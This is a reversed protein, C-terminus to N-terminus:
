SAGLRASNRLRQTFEQAPIPRCFFYGQFARCGQSMLFEVQAATEVGEAVVELNLAHSMAIITKVIAADEPNDHIDRVFSQDIKMQDLPLRKLYQLSSYGTGFDDMSFTIGSRKIEQMKAITEEVRELVASETLELKLRDARAGTEHVIRGIHKVLAPDKFQRASMNVALTLHASEPRQQWAVLQQCATELVWYGIPVILGTEEALPIFDAPSVVGRVPHHWRLLAEAGFPRGEGDVQLQFVLRFEKKELAQQLDHELSTRYELTAQLAPDYFRITNRGANKAQYMAADACKFLEEADHTGDQFLAVGISPTVRYGEGDIVYPVSLSLRVQEAFLEVRHVAQARNVGLTDLLLAFEDGGFRGMTLMGEAVALTRLRATVEQLLKDGISHGRTDNVTKFNDLDLYLLAGYHGSSTCFQLAHNIYESLLHRNPLGTLTDYHALYHAQQEAERRRVEADRLALLAQAVQRVEGKAQQALADVEPLPPFKGDSLALDSLADTIVRLNRGILRGSFLASLVMFVLSLGGAWAVWSFYDYLMEMAKAHRIDARASLLETIRHAYSSFNIFHKQAADIYNEATSPDIAAIDTAMIVFYQYRQFEQLLAVTSGHNVERLLESAALAEAELLRASLMDVITGHRYYLEIESSAGRRALELTATIHKHLDGVSRSFQAAAHITQLDRAQSASVDVYHGKLTSFSWYGFAFALMVVLMAPFLFAFLLNRSTAKM